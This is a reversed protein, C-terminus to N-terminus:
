CHTKLTKALRKNNADGHPIEVLFSWQDHCLILRKENFKNPNGLLMASGAVLASRKHPHMYRVLPKNVYAYKIVCICHLHMMM